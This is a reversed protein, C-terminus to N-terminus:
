ALVWLLGTIRPAAAAGCGVLGAAQGPERYLHNSLKESLSASCVCPVPLQEAEQEAFSLVLLRVRAFSSNRSRYRLGKSSCPPPTCAGRVTYLNDIAEGAPVERRFPISRESQSLPASSCTSAGDKRRNPAGVGGDAQSSTCWRM